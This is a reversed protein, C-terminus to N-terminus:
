KIIPKIQSKTYNIYIDEYNIDFNVDILDFIYNDENFTNSRIQATYDDIIKLDRGLAIDNWYYKSFSNLNKISDKNKLVITYDVKTIYLRPTVIYIIFQYLIITLIAGLIFCIFYM